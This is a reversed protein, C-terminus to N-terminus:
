RFNLLMGIVATMIGFGATPIAGLRVTIRLTQVEFDDRTALDAM